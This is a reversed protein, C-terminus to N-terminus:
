GSKLLRELTKPIIWQHTSRGTARGKAIVRCFLPAGIHKSRPGQLSLSVVSFIGGFTIAIVSQCFQPRHTHQTFHKPSIKPPKKGKNKNLYLQCM